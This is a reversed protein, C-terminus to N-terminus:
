IFVGHGECRVGALRIRIVWSMACVVLRGMFEWLRAGHTQDIVRKKHNLIISGIGYITGLALLGRMETRLMRRRNKPAHTMEFPSIWRTLTPDMWIVAPPFTKILFHLM